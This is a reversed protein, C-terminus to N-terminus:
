DRSSRARWQRNVVVAWILFILGALNLGFDSAEVVTGNVSSSTSRILGFHFVQNTLPGSPDVIVVPIQLVTWIVLLPFGLPKRLIM